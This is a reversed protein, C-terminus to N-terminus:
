KIEKGHLKFHKLGEQLEEKSFLPKLREVGCILDYDNKPKNAIYHFAGLLSLTKIPNNDFEKVVVDIENDYKTEKNLIEDVYKIKRNVILDYTYGDKNVENFVTRCDKMFKIDKELDFTNHVMTMCHLSIALYIVM